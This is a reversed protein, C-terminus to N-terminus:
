KMRNLEEEFVRFHKEFGAKKSWDRLKQMDVNHALCVEIAQNLGQRDNWHYFSILRDKVCDAVTLLKFVGYRSKIEGFEQIIEDGIAVPEAVFDIYLACHPHVFYKGDKIFGIKKLSKEVKDLTEYTVYDLDSSMYRNNSYITVCSGGVLIAEIGDDKFNQFILGALDKTDINKLNIRKRM